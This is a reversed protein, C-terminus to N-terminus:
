GIHVYSRKNYRLNPKIYWFAASGSYVLSWNKQLTHYTMVVSYSASIPFHWPASMLSNKVTVIFFTDLMLYTLTISLVASSVANQRSYYVIYASLYCCKREMKERVIEPHLVLSSPDRCHVNINRCLHMHVCVCMCMCCMCLSRKNKISCGCIWVCKYDLQHIIQM